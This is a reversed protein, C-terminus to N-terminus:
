PLARWARAFAAATAAVEAAGMGPRYLASGLGFGAAGAARYAAMGDPSIGGV